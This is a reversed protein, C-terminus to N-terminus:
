ERTHKQVGLFTLILTFSMLTPQVISVTGTYLWYRNLSVIMIKESQSLLNSRLWKTLIPICYNDPKLSSWYKYCLCQSLSVFQSLRSTWLCHLHIQCLSPSYLPAVYLEFPFQVNASTYPSTLQCLSQLTPYQCRSSKATKILVEVQMWLCNWVLTQSQIYLHNYFFGQM